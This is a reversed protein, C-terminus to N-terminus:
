QSEPSDDLNKKNLKFSEGYVKAYGAPNTIQLYEKLTKKYGEIPTLAYQSEALNLAFLGILAERLPSPYNKRIVKRVDDETMDKKILNSANM